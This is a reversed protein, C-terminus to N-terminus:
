QKEIRFTALKAAMLNSYLVSLIFVCGRVVQQYKYPIALLVMSNDLVGLVLVAVLVHPISGRGGSLSVGSLLVSTLVILLYRDGETPRVGVVRSSLVIGALGVLVGMAVFTLGYVRAVNVGAYYLGQRNSGHAYIYKGFVTYRCVIWVVLCTMVLVFVPVPIGLVKGHGVFHFLGEGGGQVLRGRTIIFLLSYYLWWTGLTTILSNTQIKAVLFGNTAGLVGGLALSGLVAPWFGWPELWAALVACCALIASFSLDIGGAILVLAVGFSVIGTVAVNNLINLWNATTLFKDSLVAMIACLALLVMVISNNLAIWILRRSM